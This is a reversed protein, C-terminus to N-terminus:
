LCLSFNYKSITLKRKNFSKNKKFDTVFVNKPTNKMCMAENASKKRKKYKFINQHMWFHQGITVSFCEKM